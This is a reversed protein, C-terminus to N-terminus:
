KYVEPVQENNFHNLNEIHTLNPHSNSGWNRAIALFTSIASSTLSNWIPCPGVFITNLMYLYYSRVSMVFNMMISSPVERTM